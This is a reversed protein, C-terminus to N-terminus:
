VALLHPSGPVTQAEATFATWMSIPMSFPRPRIRLTTGTTVTAGAAAADDRARPGVAAPANKASSEGAPRPSKPPNAGKVPDGTHISDGSPVRRGKSPGGRSPSVRTISVARGFRGPVQIASM